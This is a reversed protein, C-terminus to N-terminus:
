HLMPWDVAEIRDAAWDSDAFAHLGTLTPHKASAFLLGLSATDRLYCIVRRAARLDCVRPQSMRRSLLNVAHAIDPRCTTMCFMAAGTISQFTQKDAQLLLAEDAASPHVPAPIAPTPASFTDQEDFREVVSNIYTTLHMYIGDDTITFEAGLFKDL